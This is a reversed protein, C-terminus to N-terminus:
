GLLEKIKQQLKIPSFPKTVYENAGVKLGQEVDSDQGRATLLIIYTDKLAPHQRLAECVEFGNKKPMMIDSIVLDPLESIARDVAEQGNDATIVEYGAQKVIYSVSAQIHLEDDAILVRKAV